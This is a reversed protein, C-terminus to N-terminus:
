LGAADFGAVPSVGRTREIPRAALQEWHTRCNLRGALSRTGLMGRESVFPQQFRGRDPQRALGRQIMNAM